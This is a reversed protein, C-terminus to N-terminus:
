HIGWPNQQEKKKTGWGMVCSRVRVCLFKQTIETGIIHQSKLKSMFGPPAWPSQLPAGLSWLGVLHYLCPNPAGLHTLAEHWSPVSPFEFEPRVASQLQRGTCNRVSVPALPSLPVSLVQALLSPAPPAPSPSSSSLLFLQASLSLSRLGLIATPPLLPLHCLSAESLSLSLVSVLLHISGIGWPLCGM